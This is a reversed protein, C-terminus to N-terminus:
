QNVKVELSTYNNKSEELQNMFFDVAENKESENVGLYYRISGIRVQYKLQGDEKALEDPTRVVTNGRTGDERIVTLEYSSADSQPSFYARFGGNTVNYTGDANEVVPVFKEFGVEFLKNDGSGSDSPCGPLFILLFISLFLKSVVKM